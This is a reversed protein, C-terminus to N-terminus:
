RTTVQNATGRFVHAAAPDFALTVTAGYLFEMPEPTIESGDSLSWVRLNSWWRDGERSDVCAYVKAGDPSLALHRPM